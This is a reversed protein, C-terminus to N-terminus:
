AEEWAFVSVRHSLTNRECAPVRHFDLPFKLQVDLCHGVQLSVAVSEKELSHLVVDLAQLESFFVVGPDESQRGEPQLISIDFCDIIHHLCTSM